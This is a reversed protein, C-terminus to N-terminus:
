RQRLVEEFRDAIREIAFTAEAYARGHAGCEARAAADGALELAAATFAATDLPDVVRGAGTREVIKAALNDAPVALLLARGACLYSLVKSPVSFVGADPELIAMLLDASGLVDPLVEFPQFDHVVLNDLGLEASRARLWDAGIGSSVVVVRAEPNDRLRVAVQLLLDPNHKLGLTGSYLLCLKDHLGHARSWPNDKPRLPVEELPAWNEIVHVRERRTRQWDIAIRFDDSIMVVQDSRALMGRELRRYYWAIPRWLVPLRSRLVRTVGESYVDQLWFVFRIGLRRCSRQFLQQADPPTNASLVVDPRFRRVERALLKGYRREQQRRKVFSYKAIAEGLSVGEVEFTDPDSSMRELAGRPTEFSACYLHRVQHGRRALARSLQVAFPHGAFDHILIRM